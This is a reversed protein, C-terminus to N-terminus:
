CSTRKLPLYSDPHAKRAFAKGHTPISVPLIKWATLTCCSHLYKFFIIETPICKKYVSYYVYIALVFFFFVNVAKFRM